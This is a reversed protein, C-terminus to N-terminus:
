DLLIVYEVAALILLELSAHEGEFEFGLHESVLFGLVKRRGFAPALKIHQRLHDLLPSFCYSAPLNVCAAPRRATLGSCASITEPMRHFDLLCVPLVKGAADLCIVACKAVDFAPVVRRAHM